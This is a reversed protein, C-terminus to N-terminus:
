AGAHVFPAWVAPRTPYATRVAQVATHLAVAPDETRVAAYFQDAVTRATADGVAWLTGIVHRFGAMQFAGTIHLAEDTLDGRSVSTDCASLYATEADGLRLRALDAVTLPDSQHDHLLLQGTAAGDAASVAHCAFHVSRHQPLADLVRQRTAQGDTLVRAAPFRTSLEATEDRVRPLPPTGPAAPVSVILPAQDAGRGTRRADALSCVTPAYSSVVLDLVSPGGPSGAAHLPLTTLPGTPIWWLRTPRDLTDLVPRTVSNELWALTKQVEEDDKRLIATRFAEARDTLDAYHLAPLEVLQVTGNTLILADCRLVSTNVIVVPGQTGAIALLEDIKPPRLFDEFGAQERITDILQDWEDALAHRDEGSLTPEDTQTTLFGTGEPRDLATRLHEFRAALEPHQEHLDTVETRADLAQGLLVGRGTELLEVARDPRGLAIECAAAHGALGSFGALQHERDAYPLRRPATQPLLEVALRLSEAAGALDTNNSQALLSFAARTAAEIRSRVTATQDAALQRLVTLAAAGARRDNTQESQFALAAGHTLLAESRRYGSPGAAVAEATAAVFEDLQRRQRARGFRRALLGRTTPTRRLDAHLLGSTRIVQAQKIGILVSLREVRNPHAPPTAAVAQEARNTAETLDAPSHTAHYRTILLVALNSQFRPHLLRDPPTAALTARALEIARDVVAPDRSRSSLYQRRLAEALNAGAFARADSRPRATDLAQQFVEIAETLASSDGLQHHRSLLGEGLNSLRNPRREDNPHTAALATRVAAISETLDQEAGTLRWRFRLAGALNSQFAPILQVASSLGAGHELAASAQRFADIAQDLVDVRATREARSWLSTGLGNLAASRTDAEGALGVAKEFGDIAADLDAVNGGTEYSAHLTEAESLAATLRM